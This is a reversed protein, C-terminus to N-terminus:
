INDMYLINPDAQTLRGAKGRKQKRPKRTKPRITPASFIRYVVRTYQQGVRGLKRNKATDKYVATMLTKTAKAGNVFEVIEPQM